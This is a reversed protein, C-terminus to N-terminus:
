NFCSDLGPVDTFFVSHLSPKIMMRFNIMEIIQPNSQSLVLMSTNIVLNNHINVINSHIYIYIKVSM